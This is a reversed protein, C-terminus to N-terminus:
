SSSSPTDEARGGAKERGTSGHPRGDRADAPERSPQLARAPGRGRIASSTGTSSPWSTSCAGTTTARRPTSSGDSSTSASAAIGAEHLDALEEDTVGAPDHRRRPVARRRRAVRRGPRPQRCRSLHGASTVNRELRSLRAARLSAGELRRLPTSESPRTPSHRVPASCTATCMSPRPPPVFRRSQPASSLPALRTWRLAAPPVAPRGDRVAPDLPTSVPGNAQLMAIWVRSVGAARQDRLDARKHEGPDDACRYVAQYRRLLSRDRPRHRSGRRGDRLRVPHQRHRHGQALLDIGPQHYVCTDFFVNSM